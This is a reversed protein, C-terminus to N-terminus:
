LNLTKNEDILWQVYDKRNYGPNMEAQSHTMMFDHLRVKIVEEPVGAGRMRDREARVERQDQLQDWLNRPAQHWVGGM